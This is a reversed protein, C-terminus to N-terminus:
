HQSDLCAYLDQLDGNIRDVEVRCDYTRQNYWAARDFDRCCAKLQLHAIVGFGLSGGILGVLVGMLIAVKM